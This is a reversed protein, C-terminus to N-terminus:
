DVDGSLISSLGKDEIEKFLEVMNKNMMHASKSAEFTDATVNMAQFQAQSISTPKVGMDLCLFAQYFLRPSQKKLELLTSLMHGVLNVQVSTEIMEVLPTSLHKKYHKKPVKTDEFLFTIDEMTQSMKDLSMARVEDFLVTPM